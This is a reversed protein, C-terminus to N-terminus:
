RLAEAGGKITNGFTCVYKWEQLWETGIPGAVVKRFKKKRERERQRIRRGKKRKGM